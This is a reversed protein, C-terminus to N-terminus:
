VLGSRWCCMLQYLMLVYDDRQFDDLVSVSIDDGAESEERSGDEGVEGESEGSSCSRRSSYSSKASLMFRTHREDDGMKECAWENQCICRRRM